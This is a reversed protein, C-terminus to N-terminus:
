LSSVEGKELDIRLHHKASLKKLADEIFRIERLHEGRKELLIKARLIAEESL